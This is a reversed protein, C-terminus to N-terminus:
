DERSLDKRLSVYTLLKDSRDSDTIAGLQKLAAVADADDATPQKPTGSDAPDIAAKSDPQQDKKRRKKGKPRQKASPQAALEDATETQGQGFSDPMVPLSSTEDSPAEASSPQPASTDSSGASCGVAAVLVAVPWVLLAFTRWNM